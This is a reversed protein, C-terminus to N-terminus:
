EKIAKQQAQLAAAAAKARAEQMQAEDRARMAQEQEVLMQSRQIGFFVTGTSILSLLITALVLSAARWRRNSKELERIRHVFPEIM